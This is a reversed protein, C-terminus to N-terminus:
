TGKRLREVLSQLIKKEEPLSIQREAVPVVKRAEAAHGDAELLLALALSLSPDATRKGDAGALAKIGELAKGQQWLSIAYTSVIVNSQPYKTALTAALRHATPLNVGRLLSLYAFNNQHVPNDAEANLQEQVTALLQETAGRSRHLEFLNQLAAPRLGAAAGRSVQQWLAETQEAWGWSKTVSALISQDDATLNLDALLNRWLDRFADNNGDTERVARALLARRLFDYRQWQLPALFERLGNWDKARAFTDSFSMQAQVPLASVDPITKLWELAEATLDRSNMWDVLPNVAGFNQLAEACRERLGQAFEPAGSRRQIELLLMRDGLNGSEEALSRAHKLAAPLESGRDLLGQALARLVLPRHENRQEAVEELQRQAAASRATEPHRLLLAALNIGHLVVGPELRQCALFHEEAKSFRNTAVCLAASLTHYALTNRESEAVLNLAREALAHQNGRLASKAWALLAETDGPKLQAVRARLLVAEPRNTADAVSARLSASPLGRPDVQNLRAAWMTAARLDGAALEAAAFKAWRAHRRAQIWSWSAWVVGVVTALILLVLLLRWFRRERRLVTRAFSAM